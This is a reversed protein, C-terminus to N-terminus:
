LRLHSSGTVRLTGILLSTLLSQGYLGPHQRSLPADAVHWAGPPQLTQPLLAKSRRRQHPSCPVNILGLGFDYVTGSASSCGSGALLWPM